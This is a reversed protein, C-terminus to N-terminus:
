TPGDMEALADAGRSRARLIGSARASGGSEDVSGLDTDESALNEIVRLMLGRLKAVEEDSFGRLALLQVEKSVPLLLPRLAWARPTLYVLTERRDRRNVRRCVLSATELGRLAVATTADRMALRRSLERQSIGDGRWLQRLFTWLGASVGHDLTRTERIQSFYRFILRALYGLSDEFAWYDGKGPVQAKLM